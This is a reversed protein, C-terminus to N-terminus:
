RGYANPGSGSIDDQRRLEAALSRLESGTTMTVARETFNQLERINGPWDYDQLARMMKRPQAVSKRRRPQAGRHRLGSLPQLRLCRCQPQLRHLQVETKRWWSTNKSKM